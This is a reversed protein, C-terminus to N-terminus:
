IQVMNFPLPTLSPHASHAIDWGPKPLISLLAAAATDARWMVVQGGLKLYSGVDSAPM